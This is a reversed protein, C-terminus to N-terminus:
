LKINGNDFDTLAYMIIPTIILSAFFTMIGFIVSRMNHGMRYAVYVSGILYLLLMLILLIQIMTSKKNTAFTTFYIM